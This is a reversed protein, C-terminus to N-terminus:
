SLTICTLFSVFPFASKFLSNESGRNKQSNAWSHYRALVLLFSGSNQAPRLVEKAVQSWFCGVPRRRWASAGLVESSGLPLRAAGLTEEGGGAAGLIELSGLALRGAGPMERNVRGFTGAMGVLRGVLRGGRGWGRGTTTASGGGAGVLILLFRLGGGTAPGDCGRAISAMGNDGEM